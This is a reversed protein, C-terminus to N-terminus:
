TDIMELCCKKFKKGSGCPCADNRGIHRFPNTAPRQSSDDSRRDALRALDYLDDVYGSDDSADPPQYAGWSRLRGTTDDFPYLRADIMLQSSPKGQARDFMKQYHNFGAITRDIRHDACAQRVLPMLDEFGLLAIAKAWGNWLYNGAEPRSQGSEFSLLFAHATAPKLTGDVVFYTWALLAADRVFMDAGANEVLAILPAPDNDFLAILVQPLTETVADGLLHEIRESDGALLRLLPRYARKEQLEALVHVILFLALEEREELNGPEGARELISLFAAVTDSRGELSALVAAEPFRGVVGFEDIIKDTEM